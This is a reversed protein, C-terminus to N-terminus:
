KKPKTVKRDIRMCFKFNTDESTESINPPGFFQFTPWTVLVMGMQPWNENKPKTVRVALGCAFNSTQIKLREVSLGIPTGFNSFYTVHGPAGCKVLEENKPKTDRVTLWCAFNSIQLKLRELSILPNLIQFTIPSRAKFVRTGSPYYFPYGNRKLVRWNTSCWPVWTLPTTFCWM